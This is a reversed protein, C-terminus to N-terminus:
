ASPEEKATPLADHLPLDVPGSHNELLIPEPFRTEYPATPAHRLTITCAYESGQRTVKGLIPHIATAGDPLESLDYDIGDVTLTTNNVSVTTANDRVVPSLHITLKM